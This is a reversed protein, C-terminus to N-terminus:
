SRSALFARHVPGFWLKEFDRQERNSEVTPVSRLNKMAAVSSKPLSALRLAESLAEHRLSWAPCVRDVLGADLAESATIARAELALRGLLAASSMRRALRAGGGWGFTVGLRRQWFGFLVHPAAMVADFASLLELGGGYVDGEVVAITPIGLASLKGLAATIERNAAKGKAAGQDIHDKLNGGSCFVRGEARFLLADCTKEIQPLYRALERAAEVRLSNRSGSDNFVLEGVTVVRDGGVGLALAHHTFHFVSKVSPKKNKAASKM